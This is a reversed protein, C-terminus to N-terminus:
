AHAAAILVPAASLGDRAFQAGDPRIFALTMAGAVLLQLQRALIPPSDLGAQAVLDRLYDEVDGVYGEFADRIALPAHHLEVATNLYVCGGFAPQACCDALVVFFELLRDHASDARSAAIDRLPELWRTQDSELWAVVLSDKSPFHHYFSAKAVGATSIIADVGVAQIGSESFLAGAADLIRERPGAGNDAAM